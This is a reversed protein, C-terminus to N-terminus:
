VDPAAMRAPVDDRRWALVLEDLMAITFLALGLPLSLRPIWLPTAYYTTAVENLQYSEWVFMVSSWTLAFGAAAGIALCAIEVARRAAASRLKSSVLTVRIHAGEKLAYALALSSAAALGYAAFDDAGAALLGTARGLMQWLVLLFIVVICAGGLAGFLAYARDLARRLRSPPVDPRGAADPAIAQSGAM